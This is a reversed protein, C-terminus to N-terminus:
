DVSLLYNVESQNIIKYNFKDQLYKVASKTPNETFYFDEIWIVPKHLAITSIAGKVVSLEFHEVDIKMLSIKQDFNISDLPQIFVPITHIGDDGRKAIFRIGSGGMNDSFHTIESITPEEGLCICINKINKFKATNNFLVYYNLPSGEIGFIPRGPWVQNFMLQHNGINAGIDLILGESPLDQYFQLLTHTEYFMGSHLLQSIHDLQGWTVTSKPPTLKEELAKYLKTEKFNWFTYEFKNESKSM